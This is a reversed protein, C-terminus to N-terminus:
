QRKSSSVFILNGMGAGRPGVVIKAKAFLERARDFSEKGNFTKVSLGL